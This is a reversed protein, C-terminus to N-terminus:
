MERVPSTDNRRESSLLIEVEVAMKMLVYVVVQAAMGTSSEHELKWFISYILM